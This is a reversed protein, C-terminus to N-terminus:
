VCLAVVLSVKRQKMCQCQQLPCDGYGQGKDPCRLLARSGPSTCVDLNEHSRASSAGWSILPISTVSKLPLQTLQESASVQLARLVEQSQEVLGSRHTWSRLMHFHTGKLDTGGYRTRVLCPWSGWDGPECRQGQAGSFMTEEMAEASM